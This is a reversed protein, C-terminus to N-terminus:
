SKIKKLSLVRSALSVVFFGFFAYQVFDFIPQMPFLLTLVIGIYLASGMYRGVPDYIKKIFLNTIIFQGFSIVVLSLLWIPYLDNITFITFIGATLAFDTAADYYSGFDSTVALKRAFYGDLFDTVACLALVMVCAGTNEANYLYIFIPLAALRLSSIFTPILTKPKM